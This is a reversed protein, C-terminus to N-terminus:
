NTPMRLKTLAQFSEIKWVANQFVDQYVNQAVIKLSVSPM